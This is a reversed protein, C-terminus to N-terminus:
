ATIGYIEDLRKQLDEPKLDKKKAEEKLGQVKSRVLQLKQTELELQKEGLDLKKFKAVVNGMELLAGILKTQNKADAAEMLMFIQDRLANMVAQDLENMKRGAFVAALQRARESREMTERQVQEVRMDYWRSLNSHPLKQEPFLAAVKAPLKDWKVFAASMEEIEMWTHGAARLEQIRQHVETPFKDIKLPQNIQRKEGIRPRPKAM